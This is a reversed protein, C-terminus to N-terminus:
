LPHPENIGEHGEVHCPHCIGCCYPRCIWLGITSNVEADRRFRQGSRQGWDAGKCHYQTQHVKQRRHHLARDSAQRTHRLQRQM